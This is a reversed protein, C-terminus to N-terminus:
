MNLMFAQADNQKESSDLLDQVTVGSLFEKIAADLPLFVVTKMAMEIEPANEGVTSETPEALTSELASLVEWANIKSPSRSLQYGGRSGKVALLLRAKKLQAFVQELYIKSIGLSTSINIVAVNEDGGFTRAIEIVAALAYRGKVSIRM